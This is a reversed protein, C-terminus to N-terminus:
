AAVGVLQALKVRSTVGLRRYMNSIHYEVTKPSVALEAAIQKNSRGDAVLNAVAAETASLKFAARPAPPAPAPFTGGFNFGSVGDEPRGAGVLYRGYAEAWATVEV